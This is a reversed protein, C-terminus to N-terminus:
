ARGAKKIQDYLPSWQRLKEVVEAIADIIYPVDSADTFDGVTLRLSGHAIEHTLGIAMLVHSPDLEGSTCASGSSGSIGKANLSLLLAEGEIFEFAFHVNGPHRDTPHGNLRSYPVKALVGEIIADRITSVHKRHQELNEVALKTAAAFGVIGVVNETGARRKKEQAGGEIFNKLRLGRRAYLAGVGKPGYVKHSSFSMLDVGLQKVDIPLNGLAQVADSHFLTGKAHCIDAIAKIDQVTGIENNVMMISVLVTDPRIAAELESLNIKGYTDVPLYTLEYGEKELAECVHLIGHHEIASTIIHKGKSQYGAAIGRLAWNDSETGGATFYITEPTAGVCAAFDARAAELVEKAEQGFDHLSSPNGFVDSFYPMMTDLVEKKLPTTASYDLYIRKM